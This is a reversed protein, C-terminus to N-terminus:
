AFEVLRKAADFCCIDYININDKNRINTFIDMLKDNAKHHTSLYMHCFNRIYEKTKEPDKIKPIENRINGILAEASCTIVDFVHKDDSMNRYTGGEATLDYYADYFGNGHEDAYVILFIDHSPFDIEYNDYVIRKITINGHSINKDIKFEIDCSVITGDPHGNICFVSDNRGLTQYPIMSEM